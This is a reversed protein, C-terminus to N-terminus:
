RRISNFRVATQSWRPLVLRAWLLSLALAAITSVVTMPMWIPLSQTATIRILTGAVSIFHNFFLCAQAVDISRATQGVDQGWLMVFLTSMTIGSLFWLGVSGLCLRLTSHLRRRRTEREALRGAIRTALGPAPIARELTMVRLSQLAEWQLRCAACGALHAQLEIERAADLRGDLSLSMCESSEPCRM